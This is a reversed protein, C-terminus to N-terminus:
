SSLTYALATGITLLISVVLAKLGRGSECAIFTVWGAVAAVGLFPALIGLVLRLFELVAHM